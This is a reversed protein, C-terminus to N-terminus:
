ATKTWITSTLGQHYGIKEQTRISAKNETYINTFVYEIGKNQLFKLRESVLFTACRKNRYEPWVFLSSMYGINDKYSCGAIGAIKGSTTYALMFQKPFNSSQNNRLNDRIRNLLCTSEAYFLDFCNNMILNVDDTLHITFENNQINNLREFDDIYYNTISETPKFHNQILYNQFGEVDGQWTPSIRFAIDVNKEKALAEIEDVIKKPSAKNLNARLLMSPEDVPDFIVFDGYPFNIIESSWYDVCFNVFYDEFKKFLRIDDM